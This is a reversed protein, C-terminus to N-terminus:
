NLSHNKHSKYSNEFIPIVYSLLAQIKTQETSCNAYIDILKFFNKNLDYIKEDFKESLSENIRYMRWADNLLSINQMLENVDEHSEFGYFIVRIIQDILGQTKDKSSKMLLPLRELTFRVMFIEYLENKVSYNYYYNLFDFLMAEIEDKNIFLKLEELSLLATSECRLEFPFDICSNILTKKLDLKFLIKKIKKRM